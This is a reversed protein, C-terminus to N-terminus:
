KVIIKKGNVIYVGNTPNLVRRGQLDYYEPEAFGDVQSPDIETTSGDTKHIRLSLKAPAQAAEEKNEPTIVFLARYPRYTLKQTIRNFEQRSVSFTYYNSNPYKATEIYNNVYAGLARFGGPKEDNPNYKDHEVVIFEEDTEFVDLGDEMTIAEPNDKLKYLYATKVKLETVQSFSLSKEGAGVLEFFDYKEMANKPVFPLCITGYKGEALPARKYKATLFTNANTSVFDVAGADELSLYYRAVMHEEHDEVHLIQPNSHFTIDADVGHLSGPNLRVVTKDLEVVKRGEPIRIVFNGEKNYLIGDKSTFSESDEGVHINQLNTCGVFLGVNVKEEFKVNVTFGKPMSSYINKFPNLEAQASASIAYSQTKGNAFIVKASYGGSGDNDLVFTFTDNVLTTGDDNLCCYTYRDDANDLKFIISDHDNKLYLQMSGDAYWDALTEEKTALIASGYENFDSAQNEIKVGVTMRWTSAGNVENGLRVKQPEDEITGKGPEATGYYTVEELFTLKSAGLNSLTAPITISTIDANDTLFDESIAIIEKEVGNITYTSPIVLESSGKVAIDSLVIGKPKDDYMILWDEIKVFSGENLGIQEVEIDAELWCTNPAMVVIAKDEEIKDEGEGREKNVYKYLDDFHTGHLIFKKVGETHKLTKKEYSGRLVSYPLGGKANNNSMTIPLNYTLGPNGKLITATGAKLIDGPEAIKELAGEAYTDSNNVLENGCVDYAEVEEPLIVNFPLYVPAYGESSMTVPYTEVQELTFLSPTVNGPEDALVSGWAQLHSGDAAVIKYLGHTESDDFLYSGADEKNESFLVYEWVIPAKLYKGQASITYGSGSPVITFWMDLESVASFDAFMKYGYVNESEDYRVNVPADGWTAKYTIKYVGNFSPTHVAFNQLKTGDALTISGTYVAEEDKVPVATISVAESSNIFDGTITADAPVNFYQTFDVTSGAPVNITVKDTLDYTFTRYAYYTTGDNMNIPIIYKRLMARASVVTNGEPERSYSYGKAGVALRTTSKSADGVQHSMGHAWNWEFFFYNKANGNPHTCGNDFYFKWRPYYYDAMLGQWSRYSYDKLGNDWAGNGNQGQDGWTTLITRANNFEYWDEDAITAGYTKAEKAADRAEQTWKGLRFNLNTGRFADMDLILQLFANKRAEYLATNGADKAEKVGKLLFYAYDAIVAGGFEVIDYNYNSKQISGEKLDLIDRQSLLKYTADILMQRRSENYTGSAGGLTTGWSSAPTADLNPRAAWVDEVPGQIGDAGYNLPGQRLLSWAEKVVANDKGYRAVAYNEVWEAVDPKVGNMWPLQYILDYSVPTQEIAEPATGIGKISKYKAKYSFYNDTVNQLRGMLGSRGGFNPIACFVAEQPAYGNYTDFAPKGDSFLDLVILKGEPVASVSVKQYWYWQWQQIVWQSGSKAAEMADYIAKYAETYKGSGLSGGEHFPDMSYYQSVGMVAELCDYYDKAIDAFGSYTPDIIHPRHFGGWNGGNDDTPIQTKTTFNTPVMGSFGPLVPQMGLDRQLTLIQTALAQQRKYWADDQVGGWGDTGTGGWGELNNMGWWATFAPGAVFEKAEADSYNYKSGGNANKMTLFKRWVEELGVIQLPMNIGHLAMWDIEQQWRTWTWSTMSYGFTCYNLYYRYKADSCHTETEAPLPLKSLNAYAAGEEKVAVTKENLSNWAINIKAVNNLYWGIGTTIASITTGKILIKGDEAGLVFTEQKSNISPDLVFKFKDATGAGGIRNILAVVSAPNEIVQVAEYVLTITRNEEDVVVRWTYGPIDTAVFLETNIRGVLTGGDAVETGNYTITVTADSPNTIAFEYYNLEYRMDIHFAKANMNNSNETVFSFKFAGGLDVGNPLTIEFWDDEASSNDWTGATYQDNDGDIMGAYVKGNNGEFYSEELKVENGLADYLVFSDFSLRKAGNKYYAGSEALTFRIINCGGAYSLLESTFRYGSNFNASTAYSEYRGELIWPNCNNEVDTHISKGADTGNDSGLRLSNNSSRQIYLFGDSNPQTFQWADRETTLGEAYGLFKGAENKYEFIAGEPSPTYYFYSPTAQFSVAVSEIAAQAVAIQTAYDGTVVHFTHQAGDDTAVGNNIGTEWAVPRNAATRGCGMSLYAKKAEDYISKYEGNQKITWAYPVDGFNIVNNEKVLFKELGINYIYTGHTTTHVYWYKGNTIATVSNGQYGGLTIETLIPYAAYNEGAAMYGRANNTGNGDASIMYVGDAILGTAAVAVSLYTETASKMSYYPRIASITTAGEIYEEASTIAADLADAAALVADWDQSNTLGNATTLAATLTALAQSGALLGITKLTTAETILPTLDNTIALAALDAVTVSTVEVFAFQSGGGDGTWSKGDTSGWCHLFEHESVTANAKGTFNFYTPNQGEAATREVIYLDAFDKSTYWESGPKMYGKTAANRLTYKGDTTSAGLVWLQNYEGTNGAGTPKLRNNSNADDYVYTGDHKGKLQYVKGVAFPGEEPQSPAEVEEFSWVTNAALVSQNCYVKTGDALADVTANGAYGNMDGGGVTQKLSYVATHGPVVSITFPTTSSTGAHFNWSGQNVYYATGNKETKLYYQGNEASVFSFKQSSEGENLAKIQFAGEENGSTGTNVLQMYLGSYESRIRYQKNPDFDCVEPSDTVLEFQWGVKDTAPANCYLVSGATSQGTGIYGHFEAKSNVAQYLTYVDTQGQVLEITYQVNAGDSVETNWAAWSNVNVYGNPSIESKLYFKGDEANEVYFYQSTLRNKEQLQLNNTGNAQMYLGTGVNKLRYRQGVVPADAWATGIVLFLSALLMTLKKRM